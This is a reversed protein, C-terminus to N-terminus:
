KMILSVLKEAEFDEAISHVDLVRENEYDIITFKNGHGKMMIAKSKLGYPNKTYFFKGYKPGWDRGTEVSNEIGDRLYKGMCSDPDNIKEMVYIGTRLWDYRTAWVWNFMAPLNQYGHIKIVSENGIESFLKNEMLKRFKSFSGIAETAAAVALDPQLNSYYFKNDGLQEDIKAGEARLFGVINYPYPVLKKFGREGIINDRAMMNLSDKLTIKGYYSNKLKPILEAYTKNPDILGECQTVGVMLSAISKSKSFGYLYTKNTIKKKTNFIGLNSKTLDHIVKGKEYYLISTISSNNIFDLTEKSLDIINSDLKRIKKKNKFKYICTNESDCKKEWKKLKDHSWKDFEKIKLEPIKSRMHKAFTFEASSSMLFVLFIIGLFKKM